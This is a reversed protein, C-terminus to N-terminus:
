HSYVVFVGGDTYLLWATQIQEAKRIVYCENEVVITLGVLTNPPKIDYLGVDSFTM